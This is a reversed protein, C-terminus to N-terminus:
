PCPAEQLNIAMMEHRDGPMKKWARRELLRGDGRGEKVWSLLVKIGQGSCYKEFFDFVMNLARIKAMASPCDPNTAEWEVIALVGGKIEYLFACAMPAGGEEAIVGLEPLLSRPPADGGRRTWWSALLNYDELITRRVKM